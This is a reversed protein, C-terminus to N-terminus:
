VYVCIGKHALHMKILFNKQNDVTYFFDDDWRRFNRKPHIYMNIERSTHKIKPFVYFLFKPVILKAHAHSVKLVPKSM